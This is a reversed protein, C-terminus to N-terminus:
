KNLWLTALAPFKSVLDPKKPNLVRYSESPSLHGLVEEKKKLHVFNLLISTFLLEYNGLCFCTNSPTCSNYIGHKVNGASIINYTYLWVVFLQIM